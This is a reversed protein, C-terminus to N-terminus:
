NKEKNRRIYCLCRYIGYLSTLLWFSEILISAFNVNKSLSWLILISGIANLTSFYLSKAFERQLQLKLYCGAILFVGIIGIIDHLTIIEFVNESLFIVM